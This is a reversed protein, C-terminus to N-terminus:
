KEEEEISVGSNVGYMYAYLSVALLLIAWVLVVVANVTSWLGCNTSGNDGVVMCNITYISLFMPLLLTLVAVVRETLEYKKGRVPIMVSTVLLAYGVLAINAQKSMSMSQNSLTNM